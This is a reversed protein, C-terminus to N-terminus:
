ALEKSRVRVRIAELLAHVYALAAKNPTKELHQWRRAEYFLCTRLDTLSQELDRNSKHLVIGQRAVEHCKKVSGCYAYGNFNPRLSHHNELGRAPLPYRKRDLTFQPYHEYQRELLGLHDSSPLVVDQACFIEGSIIRNYVRIHM